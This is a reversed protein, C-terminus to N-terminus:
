SPNVKDMVVNNMQYTRTISDRERYVFWDHDRTLTGELFLAFPNGIFMRISFRRTRHKIGYHQTKLKNLTLEETYM